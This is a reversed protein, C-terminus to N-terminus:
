NRPMQYPDVMRVYRARLASNAQATRDGAHWYGTAVGAFLLVAIYATALSPRAFASELRAAVVRWFGIGVRSESREIRQWVAEQFRSPLQAEVKWGHLLKTLAQDKDIQTQDKM